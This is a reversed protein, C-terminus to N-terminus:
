MFTWISCLAGVFYVCNHTYKIVYIVSRHTEHLWNQQTDSFSVVVLQATCNFHVKGKMGSLIWKDGAVSLAFAYVSYLVRKM